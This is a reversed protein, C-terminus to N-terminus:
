GTFHRFNGTIVFETVIGTEAFFLAENVERFQFRRPSHLHNADSAPRERETETETQRERERERERERFVSSLPKTAM